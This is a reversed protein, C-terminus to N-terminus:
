LLDTSTIDPCIIVQKQPASPRNNFHELAAEETAFVNHHISAFDRLRNIREDTCDLLGYSVSKRKKGGRLKESDICFRTVEWLQSSRPPAEGQLIDSFVDALMHPGTTQLLRLCGVVDGDEGLCILHAPNIRDFEDIEKGDEINVDWGLRDHFVRKRLKFMEDLLETFLHRNLADVVVIM